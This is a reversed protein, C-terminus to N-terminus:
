LKMLADFLCNMLNQEIADSERYFVALSDLSHAGKNRIGYSLALYFNANDELLNGDNDKLSKAICDKTFEEISISKERFQSVRFKYIDNILHSYLKEDIDPIEKERLIARMIDEIVLCLLFYCQLFSFSFANENLVELKSATKLSDYDFLHKLFHVRTTKFLKSCLFSNRFLSYEFIKGTDETFKKLYIKVKQAYYKTFDLLNQEINEDDLSLFLEAPLQNDENGRCDEISAAYMYILCEQYNRELLCAKAIFYYPTGKHIPNDPNSKQWDVTINLLLRWLENATFPSALKYIADEAIISFNTYFGDYDEVANTTNKITTLAQRISETYGPFDINRKQIFWDHYINIFLQDVEDNIKHLGTISIQPFIINFKRDDLIQKIAKM